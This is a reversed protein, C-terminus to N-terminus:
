SCSTTWGGMPGRWPSSGFWWGRVPVLTSPTKARSRGAQPSLNSTSKSVHRRRASCTATSRRGIERRWLTEPYDAHWRSSEVTHSSLWPDPPFAENSFRAPVRGMCQDVLAEWLMHGSRKAGRGPLHATGRWLHFLVVV